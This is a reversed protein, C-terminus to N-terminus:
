EKTKNKKEYELIAMERNALSISNDITMKEHNKESIQVNLDSCLKVDNRIENL